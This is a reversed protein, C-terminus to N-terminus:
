VTLSIANTKNIFILQISVYRKFCITEITRFPVYLRGMYSVGEGIGEIGIGEGRSGGGGGAINSGRSWFFIKKL